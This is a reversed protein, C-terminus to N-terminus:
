GEVESEHWKTVPQTPASGGTMLGSPHIVTGDLTVARVSENMDFCVRKAISLNDCVVTNGCAYRVVQEYQSDFKVLDFASRVGKVLSSLNQNISPVSLSHLPLFTATPIHQEKMHRICEIATAEDEVVIADMNRGFVTAIATDYKRQTPRCLDSLKGHVNPYIQKMTAISSNLKSDNQSELLSTKKEGEATIEAVEAEADHIKSLTEAEAEQLSELKMRLENARQQQTRRQRQYQLLQQQEEATNNNVEEKRREYDKAQQLTLQPIDGSSTTAVSSNYEKETAILLEMDKELSHVVSEQQQGDRKVREINLETQKLKKEFNVLKERSKISTPLQDELEKQIRRIQVELRTKERHLLARQERATKFQYELSDQQGKAESSKFYKKDKEEALSNTKMEIHYLKWLLYQLVCERRDKVKEEFKEVERKQAEYQKIELALSRKKNFAHASNEIAKEMDAKAEDYEDKYEWSGSIQEILRTLDKPNQSAVSEVDGQFVLFNKAKVLINEKELAANYNSYQVVRDNIRYESNGNSNISRKFRIERGQNNQYVATVSAHRPSRGSSSTENHSMAESRYIMDKLNQSRLHSSHVGLVFSIADMLNSKGSGNPGIVSTFQHFPGIVQNGKYSKFNEVEIRILKGM